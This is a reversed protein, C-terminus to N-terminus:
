ARWVDVEIGNPYVTVLVRLCASTLIMDSKAM